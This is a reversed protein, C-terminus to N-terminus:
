KCMDRRIRSIQDILMGNLFILISSILLIIGSSRIAGSSVIQYAAVGMGLVFTLGALPLFVRHPSFLMITRLIIHLFRGGDRFPSINSKGEVRRRISPMPVYKVFHGACLFALTSTTPYSYKQPYLSMYRRFIDTKVARFGSTLDDIPQRSVSRAVRNLIANGVNRIRDTDCEETRAAVVMDYTPLHELLRPIDEPQHQLDGDMLVMYPRGAALAGSKVSAGNGLNYPHEVVFAGAKRAVEATSDSSGDSCVIVEFDPSVALARRVLEGICAEENYAPIVVSVETLPVM